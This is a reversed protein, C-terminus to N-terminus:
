VGVGGQLLQNLIESENPVSSIDKIAKAGAQAQEMQQQKQIAAKREQRVGAVYDDSKVIRSPVSLINAVEDIYQDSDIKDMVEPNIGAANAVIAGFREISGLGILKQAQAMISIYEIQLDKDQIEQPPEPLLNRKSMIQFVIQILPDLLDQNLQELVPGLALLKEEHREEIERATIQRRNSNALMLFLDEFYYRSIRQRVQQQKQELANIDFRLDYISRIGQQGERVDSYTIEGAVQSVKKNQMSTPAIMPPNVMKEIAQLSRREGVQLQKIDGLAEMTPCNTGWSDEGNVEWRPVLIPFYDYGSKRLFKESRVQNNKGVEYYYESYKKFDSFPNGEKYNENPEILHGIEFWDEAHGNVWADKVETSINSWYINKPNQDVMAFKMVIQRATMQYKRHFTDVRLDPGQSISYSGILIPTLKIVEKEHEEILVANTGYTGLGGYVIPLVKYLNSRLFITIMRNRVDETWFKVSELEALVPDPTTLRFWPRAPSTIGSMMGARLTRLALTATGDIINNNRKDGKNVDSTTFRESRPSVNKSCEQWHSEFSSRELEMQAVKLDIQERKTQM